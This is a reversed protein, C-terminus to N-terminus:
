ALPHHGASPLTFLFPHTLLTGDLAALHLFNTGLMVLVLLVATWGDSFFHLLVRRFLFLGLMVWLLVGFTVAVSYPPSCGDAPFGMPEALVHAILFWPACALAMGSSYKIVRAGDPGDVLKLYASLPTDLDAPLVVSVPVAEGKEARQRYAAKRQQANM